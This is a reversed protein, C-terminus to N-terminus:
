LGFRWSCIFYFARRVSIHGCFTLMGQPISAKRLHPTLSFIFIEHLNEHKLSLLKKNHSIFICSQLSDKRKGSHNSLLLQFSCIVQLVLTDVNQRGMPRYQRSALRRFAVRLKCQISSVQRTKRMELMSACSRSCLTWSGGRQPSAKWLTQKLSSHILSRTTHGESLKQGLVKKTFPTNAM